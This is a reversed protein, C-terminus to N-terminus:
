TRGPNSGRNDLWVYMDSSIYVHSCRINYVCVFTLPYIINCGHTLAM